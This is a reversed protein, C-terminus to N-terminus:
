RRAEAAIRDVDDQDVHFCDHADQHLEAEVSDYSGTTPTSTRRDDLLAHDRSVVAEADYGLRAGLVVVLDSWVKGYHDIVADRAVDDEPLTLVQDLAHEMDETVVVQPRIITLHHRYAGGQGDGPERDFTTGAPLGILAALDADDGEAFREFDEPDLDVTLIPAGDDDNTDRLDAFHDGDEDIGLSVLNANTLDIRQTPM